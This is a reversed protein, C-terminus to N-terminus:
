RRGREFARERWTKHHEGSAGNDAYENAACAALATLAFLAFGTILKQM